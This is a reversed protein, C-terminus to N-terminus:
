QSIRDLRCHRGAVQEDDGGSVSIEPKAIGHAVIHKRM